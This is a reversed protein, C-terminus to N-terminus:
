DESNVLTINNVFDFLTSLKDRKCKFYYIINRSRYTMNTKVKYIKRNKLMYQYM